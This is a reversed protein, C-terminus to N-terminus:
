WKIIKLSLISNSDGRVDMSKVSFLIYNLSFKIRNLLFFEDFYPLIQRLLCSQKQSILGLRIDM